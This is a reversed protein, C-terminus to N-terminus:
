YSNRLLPEPHANGSRGTGIVLGTPQSALQAPRNGERYASGPLWDVEVWTDTGTERIFYEMTDPTLVVKMDLWRTTPYYVRAHDNERYSLIDLRLTVPDASNLRLGVYTH